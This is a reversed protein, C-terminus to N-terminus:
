RRLTDADFYIAIVSLILIVISYYFSYLTLITCNTPIVYTIADIERFIYLM